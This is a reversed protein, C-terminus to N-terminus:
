GDPEHLLASGTQRGEQRLRLDTRLYQRFRRKGNFDPPQGRPISHLDRMVRLLPVYDLNMTLWRVWCGFPQNSEGAGTEKNGVNRDYREVRQECRCGRVLRTENRAETPCVSSLKHRVPPRPPRITRPTNSPLACAQTLGTQWRSGYLLEGLSGLTV